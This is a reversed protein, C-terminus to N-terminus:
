DDDEDDDGLGAFAQQGKIEEQHAKKFGEADEASGYIETFQSQTLFSMLKGVFKLHIVDTPGNRNRDLILDIDRIPKNRERQKGSGYEPDHLFFVAEADYAIQHSDRLNRTSPVDGFDGRNLSSVVVLAIGLNRTIRKIGRSIGAVQQERNINHLIPDRYSVLQLYDLIAAKVPKGDRLAQECIRTLYREIEDFDFLDDAIAFPLKAFEHTERMADSFHKKAGHDSFGPRFMYYPIGSYKSFLRKGMALKGMELTVIPVTANEKIAWHSGWDLMLSTKGTKELAGIFYSAYPQLGGGDLLNDVEDMGTGIGTVVGHHYNEFQERMEEALDHV